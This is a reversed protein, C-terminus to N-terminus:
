AKIIKDCIKKVRIRFDSEMSNFVNYINLKNSCEVKLKNAISLTENIIKKAKKLDPYQIGDLPSNGNKRSKLRENIINDSANVFILHIPSEFLQLYYRLLTHYLKENISTTKSSFIISWIAQFIGQDLVCFCNSRTRTIKRIIFSIYYWNYASKLIRKANSLNFKIIIILMQISAWPHLVTEFLVFKSKKIYRQFQPLKTVLKNVETVIYGRRNLEKSIEKSLETKGVGPIGVFEIIKNINNIHRQIREKKINLREM